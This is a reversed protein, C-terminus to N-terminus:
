GLSPPIIQEPTVTLKNEDEYRVMLAAKGFLYQEDSNLHIGKMVEM